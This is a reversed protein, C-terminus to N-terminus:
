IAFCFGDPQLLYEKVFYQAHWQFLDCFDQIIWMKIRYRRQFIM